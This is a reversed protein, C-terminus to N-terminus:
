CNPLYQVEMQLLRLQSDEVTTISPSLLLGTLTELSHEVGCLATYLERDLM